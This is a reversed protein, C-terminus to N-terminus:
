FLVLRMNFNRSQLVDGFCSKLEAVPVAYRAM